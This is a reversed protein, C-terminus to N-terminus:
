RAGRGRGASHLRRLADATVGDGFVGPTGADPLDTALYGPLVAAAGPFPMDLHYESAVVLCTIGAATAAALGPPSDEVAVAERADVDLRSLARLYVEPDPKLEAVDDGTVVAAFGIDDFLRKLLISVWERRGTTAIAVPVGQDRLGALLEHVGPRPFLPGAHLWAAFHATKTRHLVRAAGAPDSLGQEALYWALRYRGGTVALLRGYEAVDWHFPLGHDRFALNFAQRHGDRETEALTGDVDFIM